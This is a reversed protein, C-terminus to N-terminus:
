SVLQSVAPPPPPLAARAEAATLYVTKGDRSTIIRTGHYEADRIVQLAARYFAPAMDNWATPKTSM